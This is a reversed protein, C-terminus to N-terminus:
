SFCYTSEEFSFISRSYLGSIGSGPCIDLPILSPILLAVNV